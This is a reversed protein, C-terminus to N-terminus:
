RGGAGAGERHLESESQDGPDRPEESRPHVAPGEPRQDHKEGTWWRALYGRVAERSRWLRKTVTSVSCQCAQAITELPLGYFDHLVFTTRLKPPLRDSAATLKQESEGAIALYQPDRSGETSMTELDRQLERWRVRRRNQTHALNTAITFLYAYLGDPDPINGKSRYLRLFAEQVLEEATERSRVTKTIAKVLLAQHREVITTFADTEGARFRQLLGRDAQEM